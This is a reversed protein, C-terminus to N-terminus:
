SSPPITRSGRQDKERERQGGGGTLELQVFHAILSETMSWFGRMVSIGLYVDNAALAIFHPAQQKHCEFFFFLRTVFFVVFLFIDKGQM